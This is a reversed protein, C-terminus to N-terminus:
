NKAYVQQWAPITAGVAAGLTVGVAAGMLGGIAGSLLHLATLDQCHTECDLNAIGAMAAGALAGSIAGAIAGITAVNRSSNTRQWVALLDAQPLTLLEGSGTRLLLTDGQLGAFEGELKGQSNSVVRIRQGNKLAALASFDQTDSSAISAAQSFAAGSILLLFLGVWYRCFALSRM